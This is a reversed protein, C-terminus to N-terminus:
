LAAAVLLEILDLTEKDSSAILNFTQSHVTIDIAWSDGRPTAHIGDLRWSGLQDGIEDAGLAAAFVFLTDLSAALVVYNPFPSRSRRTLWRIAGAVVGIVGGYSPIDVRTRFIGGSLIPVGV